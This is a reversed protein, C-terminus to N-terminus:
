IMPIPIGTISFIMINIFVFVIFYEPYDEKYSELLETIEDSLEDSLYMDNYAGSTRGPAKVQFMETYEKAEKLGMGTQSRVYKIAAIKKGTKLIKVVEQIFLINSIDESLDGELGKLIDNYIDPYKRELELVITENLPTKETVQVRFKSELRKRIRNM